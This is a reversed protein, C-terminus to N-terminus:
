TLADIEEDSLNGPVITIPVPLSGSLRGALQSVLPGPGKKGTGAALVLISISGEEAILKLLEERVNGERLYYVPTLGSLKQVEASVQQLLAEAEQRREERMLDEVAMWHQFEAPEIVYLLAVRGGTNRARLSAYRLAKRHEETADVVVLFIRERSGNRGAKTSGDPMQDTTM